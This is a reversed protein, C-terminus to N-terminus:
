HSSPKICVKWFLQVSMTTSSSSRHLRCFLFMVFVSSESKGWSSWKTWRCGLWGLSLLSNVTFIIISFKRSLFFDCKSSCRHKLVLKYIIREFTKVLYSKRKTWFHYNKSFPLIKRFLVSSVPLLHSNAGSVVMAVTENSTFLMVSMFVSRFKGSTQNVVEHACRIFGLGLFDIGDDVDFRKTNWRIILFVFCTM